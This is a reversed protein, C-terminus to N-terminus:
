LLKVKRMETRLTAALQSRTEQEKEQDKDKVKDQEKDKAGLLPSALGKPVWKIQNSSLIRLVSAHAKNEPNLHGKYQFDIFSTIYLKTPKVWQIREGLAQTLDEQSVNEGLYFNLLKFDADWFGAHDCNDLLYIWVVKWKLSLNNWWPNKWKDTDTFRKAV